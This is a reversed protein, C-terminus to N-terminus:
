QICDVVSLHHCLFSFHVQLCVVSLIWDFSYLSILCVCVCLLHAAPIQPVVVSSDLNTDNALSRERHGVPFKEFLSLKILCQVKRIM